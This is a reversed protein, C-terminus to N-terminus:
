EFALKSDKQDWQHSRIENLLKGFTYPRKTEHSILIFLSSVTEIGNLMIKEEKTSDIQELQLAVM